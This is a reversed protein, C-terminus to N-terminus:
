RGTFAGAKVYRGRRRRRMKKSEQQSFRENEAERIAAKGRKMAEHAAQAERLALTLITMHTM